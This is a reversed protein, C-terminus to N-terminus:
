DDIQMAEEGESPGGGLKSVRWMAINELVIGALRRVEDSSRHDAILARLLCEGGEETVYPCYKGRDTSTLNALAWTAWLQSAPALFLPLLRLIPRFSRYNIFRKTSLDWSRTARVIRDMVSDRSTSLQKWREEDETVLHALVGASNYSIEIGDALNDLLACFISIYNDAMLQGRLPEVEAINGILGM